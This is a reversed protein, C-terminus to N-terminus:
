PTKKNKKIENKIQKIRIYIEDRSMSTNKFQSLYNVDKYCTIVLYTNYTGDKKKLTYIIDGSKIITLGFERYKEYLYLLYRPAEELVKNTIDRGSIISKIIVMIDVQQGNNVREIYRDKCHNTINLNM